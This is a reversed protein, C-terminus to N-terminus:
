KRFHWSLSAMQDRRPDACHTGTLPRHHQAAPSYLCTHNMLSHCTFSHSGRTIVPWIQADRAIPEDWLLASDLHEIVTATLKCAVRHITPPNVPRPETCRDLWSVRKIVASTGTWRRRWLVRSAAGTWWLLLLMLVNLSRHVCEHHPSALFSAGDQFGTGVHM